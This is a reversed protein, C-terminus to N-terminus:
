LGKLLLRDFQRNTFKEEARRNKRVTRIAATTAKSQASRKYDRNTSM